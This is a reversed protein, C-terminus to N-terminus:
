VGFHLTTNNLAQHARLRMQINSLSFHDNNIIYTATSYHKSNKLELSFTRNRNSINKLNM